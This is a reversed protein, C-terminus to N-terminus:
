INEDYASGNYTKIWCKLYTRFNATRECYYPKLFNNSEIYNVFFTKNYKAKEAKSMDEFIKSNRLETYLDKIKIVDDNNKTLIHNEKFWSM